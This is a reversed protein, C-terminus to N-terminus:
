LDYHDDKIKPNTALIDFFLNEKSSEGRLKEQAQAVRSEFRFYANSLNSQIERYGFISLYSEFSMQQEKQPKQKHTLKVALELKDRNEADDLEDGIVHPIISFLYEAFENNPIDSKTGFEHLTYDEFKFYLNPIYKEIYAILLAEDDSSLIQSIESVLPSLRDIIYYKSYRIVDITDLFDLVSEWKEYNDFAAQYFNKARAESQAKIFAAAHYDLISKHLFTTTDLGEEGMLCAVKVIDNRFNELECTCEPLYDIAQDFSNEFMLTDVSRGGGLQIIMFCFADFLQKLKRESLKTYHQRNFGAKLKDHKTFVIGFLKDFFDSLTSPIEKETQYVIVVLTLMLPTSIVGKISESCDRLAEVVDFRKVPSRILKSIFHDYDTDVLKTLQLVQFGVVNQIHNRPRSSIIIKLEPHKNQLTEIELVTDSICENPIEDFGDLLLVIKNSSALYDFAERAPQVGLSEIFNTIAEMLTRKTSITRLELFAPIMRPENSAIVSAALHRMFISKGQGVIGEIVINGSPLKEINPAEIITTNQSTNTKQLKSPYYFSKLSIEEEPSWITKVKEIKLLTTAAKKIGSAASWKNLAEKAKGSANNYLETILPTLLKALMVTTLTGSM